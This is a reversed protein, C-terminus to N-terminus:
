RCVCMTSICMALPGHLALQRARDAHYHHRREEASHASLELAERKPANPDSNVLCYIYDAWDAGTAGASPATSSSRIARSVPALKISALDGGVDPESLGYAFV